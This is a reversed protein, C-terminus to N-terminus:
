SLKLIDLKCTKDVRLFAKNAIIRYEHMVFYSYIIIM